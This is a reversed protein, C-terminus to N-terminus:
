IDRKILTKVKFPKPKVPYSFHKLSVCSYMDSEEHSNRNVQLGPFYYSECNTAQLTYVGRKTQIYGVPVASNGVTCVYHTISDNKPLQFTDVSAAVSVVTQGKVLLCTNGAYHGYSTDNVDYYSGSGLWVSELDSFVLAKTYLFYAIDNDDEDYDYKIPIVRARLKKQLDRQTTLEVRFPHGGNDLVHFTFNQFVSLANEVVTKVKSSECHISM